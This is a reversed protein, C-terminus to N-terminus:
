GSDLTGDRVGSSVGLEVNIGSGYRLFTAGGWRSVTAFEM